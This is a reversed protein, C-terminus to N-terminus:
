VGTICSLRERSLFLDRSGPSGCDAIKSVVYASPEQAHEKGPNIINEGIPCLNVRFSPPVTYRTIISKLCPTVRGVAATKMQLERAFQRFRVLSSFSQWITIIVWMNEIRKGTGTLKPKRYTNIPVFIWELHSQTYLYRSKLTITSPYLFIRKTIFIQFVISNCRLMFNRNSIDLYFLYSFYPVCDKM